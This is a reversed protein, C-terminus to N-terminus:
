NKGLFQIVEAKGQHGIGQNLVITKEKLLNFKLSTFEEKLEKISFLMDLNKPGGSPKRFQAKSFAEFIVIGNPKLFQMLHEHSEKRIASPFHAYSLGIVDFKVDSQFELVGSIEYHISAQKETALSLAKEKGKESIDFAVVEWGQSAAYVANRGEGEAPLLIKGPKFKDLEQKFFVNPSIGYRYEDSRYMENWFDALYEKM